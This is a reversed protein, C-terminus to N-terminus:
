QYYLTFLAVAILGFDWGQKNNRTHVIANLEKKLNGM